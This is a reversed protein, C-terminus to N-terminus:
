PLLKKAEEITAYYIHDSHAPVRNVAFVNLDTLWDITPVQNQKKDQIQTKTM